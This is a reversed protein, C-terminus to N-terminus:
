TSRLTKSRIQIISTDFYKQSQSFINQSTVRFHSNEGVTCQPSHYPSVLCCNANGLNAQICILIKQVWDWEQARIEWGVRIISQRALRLQLYKNQCRFSPPPSASPSVHIAKYLSGQHWDSSTSHFVKHNPEQLLFQLQFSLMKCVIAPLFVHIWTILVVLLVSWSFSTFHSLAQQSLSHTFWLLCHRM